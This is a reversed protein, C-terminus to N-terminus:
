EEPFLFPRAVYQWGENRIQSRTSGPGPVLKWGFRREARMRNARQVPNAADRNPGFRLLLAAAKNSAIRSSTASALEERRDAAAEKNRAILATIRNTERANSVRIRTQVSFLHEQALVELAATARVAQPTDARDVARNALFVREYAAALIDSPKPRYSPSSRHVEEQLNMAANYRSSGPIRVGANNIISPNGVLRSAALFEARSPRGHRARLEALTATPRVTSSIGTSARPLRRPQYPLPVM